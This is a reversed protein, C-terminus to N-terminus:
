SPALGPRPADVSQPVRHRPLNHSHLQLDYANYAFREREWPWWKKRLKVVLGLRRASREIQKKQPWCVDQGGYTGRGM